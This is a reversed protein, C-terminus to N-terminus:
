EGKAFHKLRLKNNPMLSKGGYTSKIPQSIPKPFTKRALYEYEDSLQSIEYFGCVINDANRTNKLRLM